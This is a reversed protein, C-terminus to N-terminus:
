RSPDRKGHDHNDSADQEKAKDASRNKPRHDHFSFAVYPQRPMDVKGPQGNNHYEEMSEKGHCPEKPPLFLPVRKQRLNYDKFITTGTHM